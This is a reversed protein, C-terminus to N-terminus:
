RFATDAHLLCQLCHQMCGAVGGSLAAPNSFHTLAQALALNALEQPPLQPARAAAEDFLAWLEAECPAFCSDLWTVQLRRHHAPPCPSVTGRSGDGLHLLLPLHLCCQTPFARGSASLCAPPM